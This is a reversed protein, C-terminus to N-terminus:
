KMGLIRSPDEVAGDAFQVLIHILTSGDPLKNWQMVPRAMIPHRQMVLRGARKVLGKGALLEGCRACALDECDGDGDKYLQPIDKWDEKGPKEEKYVVGSHYLPAYIGNEHHWKNVLALARLPYVLPSYREADYEIGSQGIRAKPVSVFFTLKLLPKGIRAPGTPSDFVWEGIRAM